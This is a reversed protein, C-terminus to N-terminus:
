IMRRNDHNTWLYAVGIVGAMGLGTMLTYWAAQKITGLESKSKLHVQKDRPDVPRHNEYIRLVHKGARTERLQKGLEVVRPPMLSEDILFEDKMCEPRIYPYALAAFTLDAATFGFSMHTADMIYAQDGLADLKASIENFVDIIEDQCADVREPTVNMLQQISKTMGGMLGVKYLVKEVMPVGLTTWQYLVPYYQSTPMTTEMTKGLLHGYFHCRLTAGLRKAMEDEFEMVPRVILSPYLYPCLKRVITDSNELVTGDPLVVVVPLQSNSYHFRTLLPPHADETYYWSGSGEATEMLDLAWRAKEGFPSSALTILRLHLTKFIGQNPPERQGPRYAFNVAYRALRWPIRTWTTPELLALHVPPLTTTTDVSYVSISDASDSRPRYVPTSINGALTM